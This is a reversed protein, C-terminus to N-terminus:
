SIHGVGAFDSHQPGWFDLCIAAPHDFWTLGMFCTSYFMAFGVVLATSRVMWFLDTASLRIASLTFFSRYPYPLRLYCALLILWDRHTGLGLGSRKSGAMGLGLILGCVEIIKSSSKTKARCSRNPHVSPYDTAAGGSIRMWPDMAFFDWGGMEVFVLVFLYWAAAASEWSFVCQM